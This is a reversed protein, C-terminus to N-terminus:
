EGVRGTDSTDKEAERRYGLAMGQGSVARYVNLMGAAAGLIFCVILLWPTTDLWRDLGYGVAAGVAVGAVLEVGARMAIGVLAPQAGNDPQRKTTKREATDRAARLRADLDDLSPPPNRDDNAMLRGGVKRGRKWRSKFEASAGRSIAAFM